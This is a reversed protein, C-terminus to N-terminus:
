VVLIRCKCDIGCGEHRDESGGEFVMEVIAEIVNLADIRVCIFLALFLGTTATTAEFPCNLSFLSKVFLLNLLLNFYLRFRDNNFLRLNSLFLKIFCGLDLALVASAEEILKAAREAVLAEKSVLMPTELAQM